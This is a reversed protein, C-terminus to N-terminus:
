TAEELLEPNEHINGIVEYSSVTAQNLNPWVRKGQGATFGCCPVSWRIVFNDKKGRSGEGSIIDGEFIKVGNKDTLGTYQGVTAPNVEFEDYEHFCDNWGFFTLLEGNHQNECKLSCTAWDFLPVGYVWEGNDVRKGRFLVERKM